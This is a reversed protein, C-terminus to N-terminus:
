PETAAATDASSTHCLQMMFQISFAPKGRQRKLTMKKLAFRDQAFTRKLSGTMTVSSAEIFNGISFASIVTCGCAFLAAYMTFASLDIKNYAAFFRWLNCWIDSILLFSFGRFSFCDDFFCLRNILFCNISVSHRRKMPPRCHIM